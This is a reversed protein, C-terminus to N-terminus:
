QERERAKSDEALQLVYQSPWQRLVEGSSIEVVRVVPQRTGPDLSITIERGEGAFAQENLHSVAQLVAQAQDRDATSQSAASTKSVSLAVATGTSGIFTISDM